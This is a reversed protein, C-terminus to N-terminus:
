MEKSETETGHKTRHLKPAVEVLTGAGWASVMGRRHRSCTTMPRASAPTVRALPLMASFRDGGPWAVLKRATLAMTEEKAAPTSGIRPPANASKKASRSSVSTAWQFLGSLSTAILARLKSYQSKKKRNAERTPRTAM